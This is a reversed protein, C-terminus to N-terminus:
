WIAEKPGRRRLAKSLNGFAPPNDGRLSPATLLVLSVPRDLGALDGRFAASLISCKAKKRGSVRNDTIHYAGSHSDQVDGVFM